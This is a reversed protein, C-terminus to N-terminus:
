FSCTVIAMAAATWKGMALAGKGMPARDIPVPVAAGMAITVLV